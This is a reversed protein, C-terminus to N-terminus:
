SGKNKQVSLIVQGLLRGEMDKFEKGGVEEIKSRVKDLVTQGEEATARRQRKRAALLVEVKKGKDLFEAMQKLKLELDHESIAWNLEIQKPKSQRMQKQLEQVARNRQAVQALLEQKTTIQCVAAGPFQGEPSLEMLVQDDVLGSMVDETPVPKSLKGDEQKLQVNLAEIRANLKFPALKKDEESLVPPQVQPEPDRLASRPNHRYPSPSPPFPQNNRSPPASTRRVFTRRLILRHCSPAYVRLLAEGPTQLLRSHRM